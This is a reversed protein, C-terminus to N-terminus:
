STDRSSKILDMSYGDLERGTYAIMRIKAELGTAHLLRNKSIRNRQRSVAPDWADTDQALKWGTLFLDVDLAWDTVRARL